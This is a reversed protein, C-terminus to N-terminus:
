LPWREDRFSGSESLAPSPQIAAYERVAFREVISPRAPSFFYCVKPTAKGDSLPLGTELLALHRKTVQKRSLPHRGLPDADTNLAAHGDRLMPVPAADKSSLPLEILLDM